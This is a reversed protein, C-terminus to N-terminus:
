EKVSIVRKVTDLRHGKLCITESNELETARCCKGTGGAKFLKSAAFRHYKQLIGGGWQRRSWDPVWSPLHFTSTKRHQLVVASLVRLGPQATLLHKALDTYM